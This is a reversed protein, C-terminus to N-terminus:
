KGRGGDTNTPAGGLHTTLFALLRNFFVRRNEVTYFGHGEKAVYLTQAPNGAKRLAEAMRKSHVIPAIKDAGGAVLLVPIKIRNALNVPSRAALTDRPGVWANVWNRLSASQSSANRHMEELDYVGVYGVACRYLGPEKAAGMLAAYGGYSAGYICIKSPDAIHQDIAWHTAATLDDQMRGGWERAGAQTFARGYNGSGRFNIRLVAYGAEALLQTDEDFAWEDFVEFPGGHPMVVMPLPTGTEAGRPLALYGQLPLGDSSQLTVPRLKPLAEPNFWERQAYVGVAHMTNTDLLYTDGPMRDNRVQVLASGDRACSTVSVADGPFAKELARYIRADDLTADLMRTHVGGDMYQAGLVVHGSCDRLISYPDVRPDLLVQKREGTLPNWAVIANPGATRSEEIYAIAGDTSFGLASEVRGSSAEDNILKWAAADNDRYFLKSFNDRGSGRAFRVQGRADTIFSARDVPATATRQRRGTYIDLREVATRPETELKWTAILVNRSDAPLPDILTAIEWQPNVEIRSVM